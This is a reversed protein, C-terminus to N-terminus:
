FCALGRKPLLNALRAIAAITASAALMRVAASLMRVAASLMRASASLMRVSALLTPWSLRAPHFKTRYNIAQNLVSLRNKSLICCASNVM